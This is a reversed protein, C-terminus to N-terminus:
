SSEGRASLALRERRARMRLWAALKNARDGSSDSISLSEVEAAARELEAALEQQLSVVADRARDREATLMAIRRTAEFAASNVTTYSDGVALCLDHHADRIQQQLEEIEGLRRAHEENGFM